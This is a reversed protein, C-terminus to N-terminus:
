HRCFATLIVCRRSIPVSIAISVRIQSIASPWDKSISSFPALVLDRMESPYLWDIFWAMVQPFGRGGSDKRFPFPVSGSDAHISCAMPAVSACAGSDLASPRDNMFGQPQKHLKGFMAGSRLLVM